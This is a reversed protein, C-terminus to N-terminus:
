VISRMRRRIVEPVLLENRWQWEAQELTLGFQRRFVWRYCGWSAVTRFFRRYAQWGFRRILFGTFSGALLYCAHERCPERFFSEKLMTPLRIDRHRFHPLVAVDIPSGGETGQLWIALGESNLSPAPRGWRGAFLHVLEHRILEEPTLAHTPAIVIANEAIIAFGAYRRGHVEAVQGADRLLFATVPRPLSHGFQKALDDIQHECIHVIRQLFDNSHRGPDSRLLVRRSRITQFRWACRVLRWLRKQLTLFLIAAATWIALLVAGFILIGRSDMFWGVLTVLASWALARVLDDVFPWWDRLQRLM